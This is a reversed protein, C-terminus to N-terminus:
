TYGANTMGIEEGQYICPTGRLGHITTALMKASELRYERDDGIRSVIRPQDHNCWFLASGAAAGSWRGSGPLVSKEESRPIPFAADAWKNESVPLGGESPPLQFIMSLEESQPIPTDSATKWPRQVAMEGVTVIAAADRGFTERNLEHLYSISRQARRHLFTHGDGTLDDEYVEPKSILNIVDFRFGKM